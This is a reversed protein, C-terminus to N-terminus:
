RRAEAARVLVEAAAACQERTVDRHTLCPDDAARPRQGVRRRCARKAVLAAADSAGAALGFVVINTQV